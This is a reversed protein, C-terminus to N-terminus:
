LGNALDEIGRIELYAEDLPDVQAIEDSPVQLAPLSHDPQMKWPAPPLGVMETIPNEPRYGWWVLAALFLVAAASSPYVWWAYRLGSTVVKLLPAPRNLEWENMARITHRVLVSEAVPVRGSADATAILANTDAITARLLDRERRLRADTALLQEVEARDEEPLEGALYMLLVAENNQLQELM